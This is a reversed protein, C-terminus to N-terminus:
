GETQYRPPHIELYDWLNSDSMRLYESFLSGVLYVSGTVYVICGNESAIRVAREMAKSNDSIVEIEGGVDLLDAVEGIPASPKRGGEVM